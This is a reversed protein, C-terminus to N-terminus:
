TDLVDLVSDTGSIANKIDLDVQFRGLTLRSHTKINEM